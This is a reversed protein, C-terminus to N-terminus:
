KKASFSGSSPCIEAIRVKFRRYQGTSFCTYPCGLVSLSGLGQHLYEYWAVLESL